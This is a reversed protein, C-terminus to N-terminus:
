TTLFNAVELKAMWAKLPNMGVWFLLFKEIGSLAKQPSTYCPKPWDLQLRDASKQFIAMIASKLGQM